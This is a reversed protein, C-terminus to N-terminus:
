VFPVAEHLICRNFMAHIRSLLGTLRKKDAHWNNTVYASLINVNIHVRVDMIGNM